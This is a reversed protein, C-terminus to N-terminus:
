GACRVARPVRGRDAAARCAGADMSQPRHEPRKALCAPHAARARRPHPAEARRAGQQAGAAGRQRRAAAAAASGRVPVSPRRDGDRVDARRVLLHRQASRAARGAGARAVDVGAYRDGVAARDQRRPQWPDRRSRLRHAQRAARRRRRCRRARERDQSRPPRDGAPTGGGGRRLDTCRNDANGVPAAGRLAGPPGVAARRGPAGHGPVHRRGSGYGPRLCRRHSRPAAGRAIDAEARLRARAEELNALQSRLRKVAVSRGLRDHHGLYVQAMGGEGLLGVLRVQGLGNIEISTQEVPEFSDGMQDFENAFSSSSAMSRVCQVRRAVAM